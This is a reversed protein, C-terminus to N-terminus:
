FGEGKDRNPTYPAIPSYILCPPPKRSRLTAYPKKLEFRTVNPSM